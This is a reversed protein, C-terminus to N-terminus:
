NAVKKQLTENCGAGLQAGLPASLGASWKSRVWCVRRGAVWALGASAIQWTGAMTIFAFPSFPPRNM